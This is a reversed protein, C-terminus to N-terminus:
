RMKGEKGRHEDTKFEVYPHFEITDTKRQSIENLVIGELEMWMM